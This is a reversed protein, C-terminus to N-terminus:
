RGFYCRWVAKFETQSCSPKNERCYMYISFAKSVSVSVATSFPHKIFSWVADPKLQITNLKCISCVCMWSSHIFPTHKAWCFIQLLILSKQIHTVFFLDVFFNKKVRKRNKVGCRCHCSLTMPSFVVAWSSYHFNNWDCRPIELSYKWHSCKTKINACM